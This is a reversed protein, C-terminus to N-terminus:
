SGYRDVAKTGCNSLKRLQEVHGSILLQQCIRLGNTRQLHEKKVIYVRLRKDAPYAPPGSSFRSIRIILIMMMMMMLIVGGLSIGLKHLTSEM